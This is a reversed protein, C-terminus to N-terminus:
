ISVQLHVRVQGIVSNRCSVNGIYLADEISAFLTFVTANKSEM